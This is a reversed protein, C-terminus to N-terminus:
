HSKKLHNNIEEVLLEIKTMKKELRTTYEIGIREKKRLNLESFDIDLEGNAYMRLCEQVFASFNPLSRAIESENDSLSITHPYAM